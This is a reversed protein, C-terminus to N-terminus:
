DNLYKFSDLTKGSATLALDDLSSLDFKDAVINAVSFISNESDPNPIGVLRVYLLGISPDIYKGVVEVADYDGVKVGRAGIYESEEFGAVASNFGDNALLRALNKLREEPDGVPLIMTVFRQNEILQRESLETNEDGTVFDIKLQLGDDGSGPNLFTTVDNPKPVDVSFSAPITLGFREGFAQNINYKSTIVLGNIEFLSFKFSPESEQSMAAGSGAILSFFLVIFAAFRQLRM